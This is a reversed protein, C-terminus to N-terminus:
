TVLFNESIALCIGIYLHRLGSVPSTHELADQSCFKFHDMLDHKMCLM